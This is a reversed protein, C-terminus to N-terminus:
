RAGRVLRGPLAGTAEGNRYTVTGAVITATYGESRQHLRGGGGPLDYRMEPRLLRINDFDILNLDARCGAALRGRDGLGVATATDLTIARVIEPLTLTSAGPHRAWRALMHTTMSADCIIGCHAGGDGLGMITDPHALMTEVASISGGLYNAAPIYFVNKGGNGVLLEYAHAAPDLGRARAEAGVSDSVPPEYDPTEAMLFINDLNALGRSIPEWSEAPYEAVIRARRAPDGLAALRDAFPLAAIERYSACFSFPNFSLELGILAGVPRGCVQGKITLGDRNAQEILNLVIRWRGPWQPFEMLSLSLKRGSRAVVRRLMAFEAEPDEFDSIMQLVGGGVDRLGLAIGTLEEEAATLSPTPSGDSARHNLSRSTSFGLAGAEIAASALQRMRAIDAETAPERDAGRQGMVYVRLPAHPLQAAVDMDFRRTGLFDLYDPFSEWRWPLGQTMVLEPIDEVGEMLRILRDHEDPRCPAFGVGCNGMVVTTVGHASSPNMREGWTAHGDYHTHIDVFGPTVLLGQADIEEGGSGAIRGVTAIRGGSIAVDAYVGPAGTGDLVFGNRVVLDFERAM